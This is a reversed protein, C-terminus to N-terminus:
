LLSENVKDNCKIIYDVKEKWNNAYAYGKIFGKAKESGKDHYYDGYKAIIEGNLELEIEWYDGDLEDENPYVYYIIFENM